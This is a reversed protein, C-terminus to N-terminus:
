DQHINNKQKKKVSMESNIQLLLSRPKASHGQFIARDINMMLYVDSHEYIRNIFFSIDVYDLCVCPCLSLFVNFIKKTM